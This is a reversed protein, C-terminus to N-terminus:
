MSAVRVASRMVAQIFGRMRRSAVLQHVDDDLRGRESGRDGRGAESRDCARRSVIRSRSRRGAKMMPFMMMMPQIM